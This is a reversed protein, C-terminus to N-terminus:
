AVERWSLDDDVRIYVVPPETGAAQELTDTISAFEVVIGPEIKQATIREIVQDDLYVTKLMGDLILKVINDIDGEMPAPAFYLIKAALPRDDLLTFERHTDIFNKAVQRVMAKWDEKAKANKSQLSRPTEQIILEIPFPLAFADDIEDAM